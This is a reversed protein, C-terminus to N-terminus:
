KAGGILSTLMATFFQTIQEDRKKPIEGRLREYAEIIKPDRLMEESPGLDRLRTLIVLVSGRFHDRDVIDFRVGPLQDGSMAEALATLLEDNTM